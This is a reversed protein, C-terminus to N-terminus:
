NVDIVKIKDVKKKIKDYSINVLDLEEILQKARTNVQTIRSDFRDFDIIMSLILDKMKGIEKQMLNDKLLAHTTLLVSILTSPSVILVKKSQSFTILDNHNAQIEFFVSESPLFMVAFDSTEGSIVYKSAITEIHKKIDIKFQKSINERDKDTINEENLKRFSELPFKSDIGLVLDNPMKIGCDVRSGTSLKYQMQYQTNSFIDGMIKDLQIEGFAGRAQKDSLVKELSVVKGSLNSIGEQASDFVALKKQFEQMTKNTKETSSELMLNVSDNLYKISDKQKDDFSEIKSLFDNANKTSNKELLDVINSMNKNNVENNSENIKLLMETMLLSMKSAQSENLKALEETKSLITDDIIQKNNKQLLYFIFFIIFFGVLFILSYFYNDNIVMRNFFM